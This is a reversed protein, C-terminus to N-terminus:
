IQTWSRALAYYLTPKFISRNQSQKCTDVPHTPSSSCYLGGIYYQRCTCCSLCKWLGIATGVQMSKGWGTDTSIYLPWLKLLLSASSPACLSPSLPPHLNVVHKLLSSDLSDGARGLCLQLEWLRRRPNQWDCHTNNAGVLWYASMTTYTRCAILYM